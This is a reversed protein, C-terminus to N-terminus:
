KGMSDQPKESHFLFPTLCMANTVDKMIVSWVILYGNLTCSLGISKLTLFYLVNVSVTESGVNCHSKFFSGVTVNPM